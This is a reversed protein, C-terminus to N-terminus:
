ILADKGFNEIKQSLRRVALQIYHIDSAINSWECRYNPWTKPHALNLNATESHTMAMEFLEADIQSCRFLQLATSKM